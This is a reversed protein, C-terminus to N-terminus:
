RKVVRVKTGDVDMIYAGSAYASMDVKNDVAKLLLMGQLSYVKIAPLEEGSTKVYLMGNTPNPYCIPNSGNPETFGTPTLPKIDDICFDNYTIYEDSFLKVSVVDDALTTFSSFVSVTVSTVEPMVYDKTDTTGNIFTLIINLTVGSSILYKFSNLDFSYGPASITIETENENGNYAYLGDFGSSGGPQMGAWAYERIVPTFKFVTGGYTKDFEGQGSDPVDADTIQMCSPAELTTFTEVDGYGTGSSNVAYARVYYITNASLDTISESFIGIGSGNSKKTVGNEDIEPTNDTSSYVIGREDVTAGGEITVEGGLSASSATISSAATTTVTPPDLNNVTITFSKSYTDTGDSTQIRISYSSQTEYDPSSNILLSNGIITFSANDTDGAGAVLSYTHSDGVDADTTSLTGVTSNPAVNENISTSSLSIDTPASNSPALTGLVRIYDFGLEERGSNVNVLIRVQLNNTGLAPISYTFEAFAPSLSSGDTTGDVNTDEAYYTAGAFPAIFQTRTIFDGGDFSYQIKLYETKEKGADTNNNGAILLKVQLDTYGSVNVPNLTVYVPDDTTRGNDTDEAYFFYTGQKGTFEDDPSVTTGDTREFWDDPSTTQAGHVTYGSLATEFDVTQLTTQGIVRDTAFFLIALLIVLHAKSLDGKYMLPKWLTFKRKM